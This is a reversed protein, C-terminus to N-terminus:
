HTKLFRKKTIALSYQIKVHFKIYRHHLISLNLTNKEFFIIFKILKHTCLFDVHM